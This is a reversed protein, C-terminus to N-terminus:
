PFPLGVGSNADRAIRFHNPVTDARIDDALQSVLASDLQRYARWGDFDQLAIVLSVKPDYAEEATLAGLDVNERLQTLGFATPRSNPAGAAVKRDADDLWCGAARPNLGSVMYFYAMCLVPDHEYFNAVNEILDGITVIKAWEPPKEFLDRVEDSVDTGRKGGANTM